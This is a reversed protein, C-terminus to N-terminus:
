RCSVGAQGRRLDLASNYVPYGPRPVLVVDGPNVVALPLHAIAEKSGISTIIESDPDLEVGYRAKMFAACAAQPVAARGRRLPLPPQGPRRRGPAHAEVIFGFTPQDPDGVGFNIVDRGAAIAARKARDIEVFLYPPM